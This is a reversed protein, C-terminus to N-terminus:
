NFRFVHLTGDSGLAISRSGYQTVGSGLPEGVDFQAVEEGTKADLRSVIGNISAIIYNGNVLAPPGALPGNPLQTRWVENQSADLCLLVDSDSSVMVVDGVNVPGFAVRGDLSWRNASTTLSNADVAVVDDSGTGRQIGYVTEGAAALTGVPKIETASQGAAALHPQPQSELTVRYIQGAGDPIILDSGVAVPRPWDVTQGASLSPQFEHAASKGTKPDFIYVAGSSSPVVLGSQFGVPMTTPRDGAMNLGVLQIGSSNPEFVVIQDPTSESVFVRIGNGVDVSDSLIPPKASPIRASAKDVVPLKLEDRGLRFLDTNATVINLTQDQIFVNGVPPVGLDVEWIDEGDENNNAIKIATVTAGRRDEPQRVAILLNGIRQFPAIYRDGKNQIWKRNLSRLSAQLDYRTLQRDGVWLKGNHFFAHGTTPEGDVAAVGTVSEALPANVDRPDLEFVQVAGLDTTVILRKGETIMPVVVRGRLRIPKVIERLKGDNEPDPALLHLLSFSPAPNEAIVIHELLEVPPAVITGNGHGIYTVDTCEMSQSNLVFVSSHAGPQIIQNKSTVLGSVTIPMPFQAGGITEGTQDNVAILKGTQNDSCTFHLQNESRVPQTLEGECPIRWKISGDAASLRAIEGRRTDVAIVDNAPGQGMTVPAVDSEFGVFRRWVVSGDNPQLAYISGRVQVYALGQDSVSPDSGGTRSALTIRIDSAVPHDDTLVAPPDALPQVRSMEMATIAEITENLAALDSGDLLTYKNLFERRIEHATGTEGQEVAANINEIAVALEKDKNIRYKVEDITKTIADIRPQLDKRYSTPLLSSNDIEALTANAFDLNTQAAESTEAAKATEAFGRYMRPLISSLEGRATDIAEEHAITPLETQVKTLAAEWNNNTVDNWIHCLKLKVRAASANDDGSFKEAFEAYKSAAQIYAQQRYSEEANDYAEQATERTMLFWLVGGLAVLLILSGGGVLMLPSDWRNSTYKKRRRRKGGTAAAEMGETEDADHEGHLDQDFEDAVVEGAPPVEVVPESVSTVVAPAPEKEDIPEALGLEDDVAMSEPEVVEVKDKPEDIPAFGLDDKTDSAGREVEEIASHVTASDLLGKKVLAKGIKKPSIPKSAGEIQAILKARVKDAILGKQHLLEVLDLASM